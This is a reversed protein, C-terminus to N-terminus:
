AILVFWPVFGNGAVSTVAAPLGSSWAGAKYISTKQALAIKSMMGTTLFVISSSTAGLMFWYNVGALCTYPATLATEMLDNATGAAVSGTSAVKTFTAMDASTAIGMDVNGATAGLYIGLKTVRFDQALRFHALLVDNAAPSFSLSTGTLTADRPEFRDMRQERGAYSAVRAEEVDTFPSRSVYGAGPLNMRIALAMSIVTGATFYYSEKGDTTTFTGTSLMTYLQPETTPISM